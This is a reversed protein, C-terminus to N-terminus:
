EAERTKRWKEQKTEYKESQIDREAIRLENDKILTRMTNLWDPIDVTRNVFVKFIEAATTRREDITHSPNPLVWYLSDLQSNGDLSSSSETVVLRKKPRTHDSVEPETDDPENKVSIIVVNKVNRKPPALGLQRRVGNRVPLM